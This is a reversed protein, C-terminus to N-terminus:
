LQLIQFDLFEANKEMKRFRRNGVGDSFVNFLTDDISDQKAKFNANVM